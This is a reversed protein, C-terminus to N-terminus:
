KTIIFPSLSILQSTSIVQKSSKLDHLEQSFSEQQATKILLIRSKEREQTTLAGTQRKSKSKLNNIFRVCFATVIIIKTLSSYQNMLKSFINPENQAILVTKKTNCEPTEQPSRTFNSIHRGQPWTEHKKSLFTPGKWWLTSDLMDESSMGRSILDALNEKSPIHYWQNVDTLTQIESIRNCVFTKWTAPEAALWSLVITSDTYYFIQDIRIQLATIVKRTLKASLLTGCLELCPLTISKIPAVRSKATILRVTINGLKDESRAYICAGYADNSADSFCHLQM